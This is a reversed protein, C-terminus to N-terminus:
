RKPLVTMPDITKGNFFVEFHLHAGESRGSHGVRGILDGRKVVNGKKALSVSLHAYRTTWGGPHSIEIWNGYTSDKARITVTGEKAAFILTLLTNGKFDLGGHTQRVGNLTRTGYGSTVFGSCPRIFGQASIAAPPLEILLVSNIALCGCLWCLSFLVALLLFHKQRFLLSPRLKCPKL